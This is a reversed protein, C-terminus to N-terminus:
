SPGCSLLDLVSTFRGGRMEFERLEARIEDMYGYSFVIVEDVPEALLREPPVVPVHTAPTYLGHFSSNRDCLFAVDGATLGTMALTMVGRGGAGYGAVRRGQALQKRVYARLGAHAQEVRQGFREYTAWDDLDPTQDRRAREVPAQAASELGAAVLLSNGRREKEPLLDATLLKFGSRELVREMSREHLYITHEHEFLCTECRAVIKALDHVEILLVGRKPDLVPRVAELFGPPDPLHDFTYTLLVVQAPRMDSPIGAVTEAGFLCQLADVGAARSAAVLDRSPEFGLVRAGCDRFRALQYGDGSGIELVRDGPQLQFRRFSEEALRQMFRRALPSASVTYRYERYYDGVDVDHLTQATRCAPCFYIALDARFEEGRRAATVFDDTLPMNAFHVFRRLGGAGCIRCVTRTHIQWAM